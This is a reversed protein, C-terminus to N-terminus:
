IILLRFWDLNGLYGSIVSRDIAPLLMWEVFRVKWLSAIFRRNVVDRKIEQLLVINPWEKCLVVRVLARRRGSGGGRINWSCMKM